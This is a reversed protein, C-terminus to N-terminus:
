ETEVKAVSLQKLNMDTGCLRVTSRDTKIDIWPVVKEAANLDLVINVITGNLEGALCRWTVRDNIRLKM